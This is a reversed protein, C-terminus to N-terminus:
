NKNKEAGFWGAVYGRYIWFLGWFVAAIIGGIIYSEASSYGYGIVRIALGITAIVLIVPTFDLYKETEQPPIGQKGELAMKVIQGPIGRAKDIIIRKSTKDAEKWIEEVLKGSEYRTLPKIFIGKAKMWVHNFKKKGGLHGAGIFRFWNFEMLSGIVEAASPTIAELRDIAIYVRNGKYGSLAQLTDAKTDKLNIETAIAMNLLITKATPPETFHVIKNDKALEVALKNLTYTKGIGQKGLLIISKKDLETILKNIFQKSEEPREKTETEPTETQQQAEETLETTEKSTDETDERMSFSKQIDEPLDKLRFVTKNKLRESKWQEKQSRRLISSKSKGTKEAIEKITVTM